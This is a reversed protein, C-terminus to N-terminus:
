RPCRDGLFPSPPATPVAPSHTARRCALHPAAVPGCPGDLLPLLISHLGSHNGGNCAHRYRAALCTPTHELSPRM